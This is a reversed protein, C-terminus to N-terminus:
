FTEPSNKPKKSKPKRVKKLPNQWPWGPLASVYKRTEADTIFRDLAYGMCESKFLRPLTLFDFQFEYKFDQWRKLLDEDSAETILPRHAACVSSLKMIAKLANEGGLPSLEYLARNCTEHLFVIKDRLPMAGIEFDYQIGTGCIAMFFERYLEARRPIIFNAVDEMKRKRSLVIQQIILVALLFFGTIVSSIIEYMFSMIYEQFVNCWMKREERRDGSGKRAFGRRNVL